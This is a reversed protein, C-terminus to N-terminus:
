LSERIWRFYSHAWSHNRGRAREEESLKSHTTSAPHTVTSRTDGLNATLSLMELADLFKRGRQVGGKVEFTVLGGGHRMQRKAVDHMPHSPPLPLTGV